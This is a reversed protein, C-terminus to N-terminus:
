EDAPPMVDLPKPHSPAKTMAETRTTWRITTSEHPGDFQLRNSQTFYKHRHTENLKYAHSKILIGQFLNFIM